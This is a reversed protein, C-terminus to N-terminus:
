IYGGNIGILILLCIGMIIAFIAVSTIDKLLKIKNNEKIKQKSLLKQTEKEGLIEEKIQAIYEDGVM